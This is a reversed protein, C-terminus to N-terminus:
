KRSEVLMIEERKTLELLSSHLSFCIFFGFRFRCTAIVWFAEFNVKIRNVDSSRPSRRTIEMIEKLKIKIARCTLVSVCLPAESFSECRKMNERWLVNLSLKWAVHILQFSSFQFRIRNLFLRVLFNRFTHSTAKIIIFMKTIEAPSFWYKVLRSHWFRHWCM